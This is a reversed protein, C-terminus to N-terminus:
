KCAYGVQFTSGLSDITKNIKEGLHGRKVVRRIRKLRKLLDERVNNKSCYKIVEIKYYSDMLINEDFHRFISSIESVAANNYNYLLSLLVGALSSLRKSNEFTLERLFENLEDKDLQCLCGVLARKIETNSEDKYLKRLSRLNRPQLKLNTLLLACQVRTYWHKSKQCLSKRAYQITEISIERLYRLAMIIHAEQYPFLNIPSKLFKILEESIKKSSRPLHRFYRIASDTLRADPNKPLQGLINKVMYSSELLTFGTILRRYLRLDKGQIIRKRKKIKLYQKSFKDIHEKRIDGTISDLNGQPIGREISLGHITPWTWYELISCLLNVIKQEKPLYKILSDRLLHLNINEFYASIDSETLCRYGENEFAYVTRKIFKPWQGYWPEVIDVRKRITKGRLFPFKLIELDKFLSRSDTKEKLRYSYVTEPLKKDLRPAILITIAFLVIRDEIFTVSGPRVSLTSKPVDIHILPNPHYEESKLVKSIYQLDGELKFAFDNYRFPDKIFDTHADNIALHWARRLINFDSLRNYLSDAM